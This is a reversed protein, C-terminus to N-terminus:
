FPQFANVQVVHSMYKIKSKKLSGPSASEGSEEPVCILTKCIKLLPLNKGVEWRWGEVAICHRRQFLFCLVGQVM